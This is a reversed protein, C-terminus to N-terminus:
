MTGKCFVVLKRDASQICHREQDTPSPNQKGGDQMWGLERSDVMSTRAMYGDTLGAPRSGPLARARVHHAGGATKELPKRGRGNGVMHGSGLTGM